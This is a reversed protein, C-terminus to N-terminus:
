QLFEGLQELLFVKVDMRQMVLAVIRQFAVDGHGDGGGIGGYHPSQLAVAASLRGACRLCAWQRKMALGATPRELVCRRQVVNEQGGVVLSCGGTILLVMHHREGCLPEIGEPRQTIRHGATHLWRGVAKKDEDTHPNEVM